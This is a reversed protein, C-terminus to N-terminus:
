QLLELQLQQFLSNLQVFDKPRPKLSVVTRLCQGPEQGLLVLLCTQDLLHSLNSQDLLGMQRGSLDLQHSLGLQDM